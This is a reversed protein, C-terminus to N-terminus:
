RNSTLRYRGGASCCLFGEDLLVALIRRCEDKPLDFLRATQELTPSFGPMENFEGRVRQVLQFDPKPTDQSLTRVTLPKLKIDLSELSDSRSRAANALHTAM